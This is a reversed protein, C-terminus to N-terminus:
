KISNYIEYRIKIRLKYFIKDVNGAHYKNEKMQYLLIKQKMLLIVSLLDKIVEDIFNVQM